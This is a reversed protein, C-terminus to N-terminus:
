PAFLTNSIIRWHYFADVTNTGGITVTAFDPIKPDNPDLYREISTAGRYEGLVAGTTENWQAPDSSTNQLSQVRFHVTYTNSKTTLRPYIDGYPRERVNDGVLAFDDGYWKLDFGPNQEGGWTYGQPVLYMDCIESASKFINGDNFKDQFQRLTGQYEDLNLPLRALTVGGYTTYSPAGPPGGKYHSTEQSASAHVAAARPVRAILESGLVARIATDRTIYTFPIIQYNMNVRGATSFPESIAYPEVVPMTFLDLLLHDPPQSPNDFNYTGSEPDSRVNHNYLTGGDSITKIPRFQLTRWSIDEMVGTPLSGFMVPSNIIRNATFYSYIVANNSNQNQGSNYYPQQANGGSYYAGSDPKNAYAGDIANVQGTDWDWNAQPTANSPVKPVASVAYAMTGSGGLGPVLSGALDEGPMFAGFPGTFNDCLKVSSSSYGATKTMDTSGDATVSSRGMVLRVDGDKAILTRVVDSNPQLVPVATGSPSKYLPPQVWNASMYTWTGSVAPPDSRILCGYDVPNAMSSISQSNGNSNTVGSASWALRHDFGWWDAASDPNISTGVGRWTPVIGYQLLDPTPTTTNPFTLNFMQFTLPVTGSYAATGTSNYRPTVQLEVAISGSSITMTGNSGSDALTFPNSIYRYDVNGATPVYAPPTASAPFAPCIGSSGSSGSWGSWGSHRPTSNNLFMQYSQYGGYRVPTVEYQNELVLGDSNVFPHQGGISINNLGTVKIGYNPFLLDYGEMPAQVEIVLMAQFRKQGNTLPTLPGGYTDALTLNPPFPVAGSATSNDRPFTSTGNPPFKAQFLPPVTASTGSLAVPFYPTTGTFVPNLGTPNGSGDRLYQFAPLNSVYKYDNASGVVPSITGSISSGSISVPQVYSGSITSNGDATCVVLLGIESITYVRGMGQTTTGSNTIQLPVIQASGPAFANSSGTGSHDIEDTCRIYDVMETLIQNMENNTGYKNLFTGGFGPIATSTLNQLYSYLQKNRAIGTHTGTNGFFDAGDFDSTPSTSDHRQIYYQSLAGASGTTTTCFAILKDYPSALATSNTGTPASGWATNIPWMSIRPTGFLNIDPARSRATLFFKGTEVQQRTVTTSGSTIDGMNVQRQTGNTGSASGSFLFEGVSAYLRSAPVVVPPATIQATTDALGSMSSYADGYRPLLSYFGSASGSPIAMTGTTYPPTLTTGNPPYNAPAVGLGNLIGYLDTTAPHGPYRQYEYHVPSDESFLRFEDWMLFRPTDWPAPLLANTAGSVSPDPRIGMSGAATNINVKCTDDDTWFAIRGVIPDARTPVTGSLKFTAAIGTSTADPTIVEGNKLVYLWRVPMPAPNANSGGAVPVATTGPIVGANSSNTTGLFFGPMKSSSLVVPSASTGPNAPDRPDLIPYSLMPSGASDQLGLVNAPANLDVWMAPLTAWNAPPLDNALDATGSTTMGTGSSYLRYINVLAGTNDFVRVAGPQSAWATNALQTADNIQGQVINVSMDALRRTTIVASYSATSARDVGARLLFGVILATILVLVALVIVLAVGNQSYKGPSSAPPKM